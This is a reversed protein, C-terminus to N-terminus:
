NAGSTTVKSFVFDVAFLLAHLSGLQRRVQPGHFYVSSFLVDTLSVELPVRSCFAQVWLHLMSAKRSVNAHLLPPAGYLAIRSSGQITLLKCAGCSKRFCAGEFKAVVRERKTDGRTGVHGWTHHGPYTKFFESATRTLEYNYLLLVCVVEISREEYDYRLM